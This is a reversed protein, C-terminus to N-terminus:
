QDAALKDYDQQLKQIAVSNRHKDVTIDGYNKKLSGSKGLNAQKATLTFEGGYKAIMRAHETCLRTEPVAEIRESDILRGCIQCPRTKVSM